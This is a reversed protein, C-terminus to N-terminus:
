LPSRESTLANGHVDDVRRGGRVFTKVANQANTSTQWTGVAVIRLFREPQIKWAGRCFQWQGLSLGQDAAHQRAQRFTGAIILLPLPKSAM